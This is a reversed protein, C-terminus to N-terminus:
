QKQATKPDHSADHIADHISKQTNEHTPHPESNSSTLTSTTDNTSSPVTTTNKKTSPHKIRGIADKEPTHAAPNYTPLHKVHEDDEVIFQVFYHVVLWYFAVGILVFSITQLFIVSFFPNEKPHVVNFLFQVVVQICVMRLIDHSVNFYQAPVNFSFLAM